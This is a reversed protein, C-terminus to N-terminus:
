AAVLICFVRRVGYLGKRDGWDIGAGGECGSSLHLWEEIKRDCIKQKDKFNM